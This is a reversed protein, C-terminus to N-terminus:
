DEHLLLENYSLDLNKIYRNQEIVRLLKIMQTPRVGSWSLDLEELLCNDMTFQVLKDFSRESHSCRVIALKRLHARNEVMSDM